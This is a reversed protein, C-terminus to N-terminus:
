NTKKEYYAKIGLVLEELCMKRSGKILITDKPKIIDILKTLAKENDEYASVNQPNAGAKLAGQMVLPSFKGIAIILDAIKAAQAGLQYHFIQSQDGLELMDGFVCIRRETIIKSLTELAMAMSQPNANYTDNIIILDKVKIIESRQALPKFNEIGPIIEAFDMGVKSATAIAALANYINHRGIASLHVRYKGQLLFHSGETVLDIIRQAFVEAPNEIGFTSKTTMPFKDGITKVLEDDANLICTGNQGLSEVLEAKEQMVNERNGLFELHTDGINTVVGIQPKAIQALRRIGGLINMEMELILVETQSNLELVTLPVGIDNNYSDKAKVVKMRRELISAIMEKTTTKGNSGTVAIVLPNFKTRYYRAINGLAETTDKVKILIINKAKLLNNVKPPHTVIAGIAGKSIAESIFKHGDQNKGKLAIFLDNAKVRRSDITINSIKAQLNGSLLKGDTATIIEEVTLEEM